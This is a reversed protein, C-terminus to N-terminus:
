LKFRLLINKVKLEELMKHTAEPERQFDVGLSIFEEQKITKRKVFPLALFSIPIITLALFFTKVLSPLQQKRMKKKYEKDQLLAPQDSYNDWKYPSKMVREDM